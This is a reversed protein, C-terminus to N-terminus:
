SLTAASLNGTAQFSVQASVVEGVAAGFSASTIFASLTVDNNDSGDLLRLTMVVADSDVVGSANTNVLKQLVTGADINGNNEKYYLLTASGSYSQVGPTFTRRTDGLSTTELLELDAQLNWSTVKVLTDSGLLLAGDRGTYVKAM